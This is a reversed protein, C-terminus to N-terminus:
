SSEWGCCWQMLWSTCSAGERGYAQQTSYLAKMKFKIKGSHWSVHRHLEEFSERKEKTKKIITMRVTTLHYRIITELQTERNNSINLM